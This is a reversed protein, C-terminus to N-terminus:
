GIHAYYGRRILRKACRREPARRPRLGGRLTPNRSSEAIVGNCDFRRLLLGHLANAGGINTTPFRDLHGPSGQQREDRRDRNKATVRSAGGAIRRDKEDM